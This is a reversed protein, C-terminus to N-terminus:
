KFKGELELVLAFIREPVGILKLLTRLDKLGEENYKSIVVTMFPEGSLSIVVRRADTLDQTEIYSRIGFQIRM